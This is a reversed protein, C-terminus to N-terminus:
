ILIFKGMMKVLYSMFKSLIVKNLCFIYFYENSKVQYHTRFYNIGDFSSKLRTVKGKRDKYIDAFQSLINLFLATENGVGNIKTLDSFDADVIKDISGYVDLLYHGLPNTDKYPITYTLLLEVIEHDSLVKLGHEKVKSKLRQRHGAHSIKGKTKNQM